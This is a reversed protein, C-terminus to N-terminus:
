VKFLWLRAHGAERTSQADFMVSTLDAALEPHDTYLADYGDLLLVSLDPCVASDTLVDYLADWNQGFWEPLHLDRQWAQMLSPKDHVDRLNIHHVRFGRALARQLFDAPVPLVGAPPISSPNM